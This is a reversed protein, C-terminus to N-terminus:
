RGRSCVVVREEVWAGQCLDRPSSLADRSGSGRVRSRSIGRACVYIPMLHVRARAGPRHLDQPARSLKNRPPPLINIFARQASPRNFFFFSAFAARPDRAHAGKQQQQKKKRAGFRTTERSYLEAENKYLRTSIAAKHLFNLKVNPTTLFDILKKSIM